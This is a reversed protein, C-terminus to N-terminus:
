YGSAQEALFRAAEEEGYAMLERIFDASRELKSARDLQRRLEIRRVRTQRFGAEASLQGRELLANMQEVFRVEHELSLNGMLENYRDLIEASTGPPAERRRPNIQVIWIEDVGLRALEVIPPNRALLGDWYVDGDVVGAPFYMPDAASSLLAEVSIDADHFIKFDGSCVNVAGILCRPAAPTVLDKLRSFRVHSQLTHRLRDQGLVSFTYPVIEPMGLYTRLRAAPVLWANVCMDVPSAAAIDAWVADLLRVSVGRDGELLGYWALVANVAGGSAGSLAVIEVPLPERLIRKLVGATFATHSGGGHCAIAVRRPAELDVM